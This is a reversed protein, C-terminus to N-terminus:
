EIVVLIPSRRTKPSQSPRWWRTQGPSWACPPWGVARPGITVPKPWLGQSNRLYITSRSCGTEAEVQKRRLIALASTSISAM